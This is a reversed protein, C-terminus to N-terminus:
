RLAKALHDLNARMVTEYLDANLLGEDCTELPDIEVFQADIGHKKLEDLMTKASTSRPYQPEVAIVRIKEKKCLEILQKM